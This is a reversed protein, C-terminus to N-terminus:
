SFDAYEKSQQPLLEVFEHRPKAAENHDVSVAADIGDNAICVYVLSMWILDSAALFSAETVEHLILMILVCLGFAAWEFRGQQRLQHRLKQCYSIVLGFLLCLGVFGLELIVELYGNHAENVEAKAITGESWFGGYGHGLFPEQLAFPTLVEWIETRGTFTADRGLKGSVTSMLSSTGAFPLYTGVVFILTLPIVFINATLRVQRNRTWVLVLFTIIGVPLCVLATASYAGEGLLMHLAIILIFLYSFSELRFWSAGRKRRNTVYNWVLFFISIMCLAGLGNKTTTVGIWMTGGSHERYARGLSPFYKILLLSFPILIYTLRKFVTLLAERPAAESFIILAMVVAGSFKIFRKLSVYLPIDAWLASVLAFLYLAILWRHERKFVPWHVPRRVLVAIGLLILVTLFGRDLLSGEEITGGESLAGGGLWYV